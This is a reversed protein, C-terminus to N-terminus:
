RMNQFYKPMEKRLTTLFAIHKNFSFVGSESISVAPIWGIRRCSEEYLTLLKNTRYTAIEELSLNENLYLILHFVHAGLLYGHNKITDLNDYSLYVDLQEQVYKRAKKKTEESIADWHFTKPDTQVFAKYTNIYRRYLSGLTKNLESAYKYAAAYSNRVSLESFEFSGNAVNACYDAIGETLIFDYLYLLGKRFDAWITIMIEYPAFDKKKILRDIASYIRKQNKMSLEKMETLRLQWLHTAEHTITDLLSQLFRINTPQTEDLLQAYITDENIYIMNIGRKTETSKVYGLTSENRAEVLGDQFNNSFKNNVLFVLNVKRFKRMIQQSQMASLLNNLLNFKMLFSTKPNNHFAILRRRDIASEGLKEYRSFISM